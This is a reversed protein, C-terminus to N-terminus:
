TFIVLVSLPNTSLFSVFPALWLLLFEPHLLEIPIGCPETTKTDYLPYVLCQADEKGCRSTVTGHDCVGSHGFNRMHGTDAWRHRFTFRVHSDRDGEIPLVVKVTEAWRPRSEHWYVVSRYEEVPSCGAGREIVGQVPSM